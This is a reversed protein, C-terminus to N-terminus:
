GHVFTITFGFLLLLFSFFIFFLPKSRWYTTPIYLTSMCSTDQKRSIIRIFLINQNKNKKENRKKPLLFFHFYFYVLLIIYFCFVFNGNINSKRLGNFHGFNNFACFFFFYFFIIWSFFSFGSSNKLTDDM